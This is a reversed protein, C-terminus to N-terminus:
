NKIVTVSRSGINGAADFAKCTIVHSGSGAKNANWTYSSVNTAVVVGDVLIQRSTVGINDTATFSIKVNRNGRAPIQYGDQPSIINVVPAIADDTPPPPPPPPPPPATGFSITDTNSFPSVNGWTDEARVYFVYNTLALGNVKLSTTLGYVSGFQRAVDTGKKYWLNTRWFNGEPDAPQPQTWRIRVWGGLDDIGNEYIEFNTPTSPVGTDPTSARLQEETVTLVNSPDSYIGYISRARITMNYTTIPMGTLSMWGSIAWIWNPDLQVEYGAIGDPHTSYDFAISIYAKGDPGIGYPAAGNV